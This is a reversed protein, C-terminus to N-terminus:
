KGIDSIKGKDPNPYITATSEGKRYKDIAVTRRRPIPRPRAARSCSIPRITSWRPSIASTPAASIGTIAPKRCLRPDASPGLDQPWLGCPGAERWSGRITSTSADRAQGPEDPQYPRVAIGRPPIGAAALISQIERMAEAAPASRERHGVASRHHRRRDGRAELRQRLCACRRAAVADPRRAQQRRLHRGHTRRGQDRDSPAAPLRDPISATVERQTYCGALTVTLLGAALGRVAIASIRRRDAIAFDMVHM